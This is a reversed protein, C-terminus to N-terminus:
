RTELPPDFLDLDSGDGSWCGPRRRDLELGLNTSRRQAGLTAAGCPRHGRSAAVYLAVLRLGALIAAAGIAASGSGGPTQNRGNRIEELLLRVGHATMEDVSQAWM